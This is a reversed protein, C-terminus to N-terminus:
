TRARTTRSPRARRASSRSSRTTSTSATRSCRTARRLAGLRERARASPAARRRRGRRRPRAAAGLERAPAALTEDSLTFSAHAGVLARALPPQERRVRDLFRRNEAIGPPPASPGTATPPRTASCRASASRARARRRDRRALRRDREALRPPRRADDDRLAAGGDRRGAGLRPDDGRRARPRAAVLDAPPDPPLERPPELAYPM